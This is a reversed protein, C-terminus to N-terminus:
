SHPLERKIVFRSKRLRRRMKSEEDLMKLHTSIYSIVETLSAKRNERFNWLLEPDKYSGNCKHLDILAMYVVNCIQQGLEDELGQLQEDHMKLLGQPNGKEDEIVKFPQWCPNERLKNELFISLEVAKIEAESPPFRKKCADKFAKEYIEGMRKVGFDVCRHSPIDGLLKVIELRVEQLEENSNREKLVSHQHVDELISLTVEKEKLREVLGRYNEEAERLKEAMQNNRLDKETKELELKKREHEILTQRKDLEKSWSDLRRKGRKLKLNLLEEEDKWIGKIDDHAMSRLKRTETKLLNMYNDSIRKLAEKKRLYDGEPHESDDEDRAFRKYISSGPCKRRDISQKRSGGCAKSSNLCKNVIRFGTRNDDCEAGPSPTMNQPEIVDEPPSPHRLSPPLMQPLECKPCMFETLGRLVTLVIRCGACRVQVPPPASPQGM